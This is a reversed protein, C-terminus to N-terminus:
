LIKLEGAAVGFKQDAYLQHYFVYLELIFYSLFYTDANWEDIMDNTLFISTWQLM